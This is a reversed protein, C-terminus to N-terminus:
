TTGAGQTVIRDYSRIKIDYCFVIARSHHHRMDLDSLTFCFVQARHLIPVMDVARQNTYAPLKGKEEERLVLRWLRLTAKRPVERTQAKALLGDGVLSRFSRNHQIPVRRRFFWFISGEVIRGPNPLVLDM